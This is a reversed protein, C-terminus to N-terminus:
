TTRGSGTDAATFYLERINETLQELLEHEAIERNAMVEESRREYEDADSERLDELASMQPEFRQTIRAFDASYENRLFESWQRNAVAFGIFGAGREGEVVRQRASQLAQESVEAIKAFVMSHPQRPLDLARALGIRYALRVEVDDVTQSGSKRAVIEEDVITQIEDLRFLSRMVKLRAEVHAGQSADADLLARRVYTMVQIDSFILRIGDQCTQNAGHMRDNAIANLDVRLEADQAAMELVQLVDNSLQSHYRRFDQTQHLQQTLLLLDPADNAQEISDWAAHVRTNFETQGSEEWIDVTPMPTARESDDSDSWIERLTSSDDSGDAYESVSDHRDGPADFELRYVDDARGRTNAWYRRLEAEDLPNGYALITMRYPAHSGNQIVQLPLNEIRNASIDLLRLGLNDTWQPWQTLGTRYLWLRELHAHHVPALEGLTNGGLDLSVLNPIQMLRDMASQDLTLGAGDLSLYTLQEFTHLREPLGTIQSRVLSLNTINPFQGLFSDLQAATASVTDLTISRIQAYHGALEPLGALEQMDLDALFVVRRGMNPSSEANFRWADTVADAVERRVASQTGPQASAVWGDLATSLTDLEQLRNQVEQWLLEVTAGEELRGRIYTAMDNAFAPTNGLDPYLRAYAARLRQRDAERLNAIPLGRGSLRYGFRGDLLRGPGRFGPKIPQMGLIKAVRLRQSSAESVIRERLALAGQVSDNFGIAQRAEEPLAQLVTSFFNQHELVEEQLAQGRRDFAQYRSGSKVLVARQTASREGIADLLPGSLAGDRVEVRLGKPWGPLRELLHLALKHTDGHDARSALFFGELAQNVRAEQLYDRVRENLALPIRQTSQMQTLQQADAEALVERAAATPLRPFDRKLLMVLPDASQERLLNLTDFLLPRSDWSVRGVEFALNMPNAPRRPSFILAKEDESLADLVTSMLKGQDIRAQSVVIPRGPPLTEGALGTSVQIAREKPWGRISPLLKLQLRPDASEFRSGDNILEIFTSVQQNVGFREITDLLGAPPAQRDLHLVSLLSHDAGSVRMVQEVAEEPLSAVPHGLRRFSKRADWDGPNEGEHRWAGAGNHELTPSFRGNRPPEVRWSNLATDESVPYLRDELSVYQKGRHSFIGDADPKLGSPLVVDSAFPVLNPSWLRVEGNNLTVPRMSDVFSSARVPTLLTSLERGAIAMSAAMALNEAVSELHGLAADLDGQAWAAAGEFVEGLLQLGIIVAVAEGLGPIFGAVTLVTEALETLRAIESAQDKEFVPVATLRADERIRVMTATAFHATLLDPVAMLKLDLSVNEDLVVLTQTSTLWGSGYQETKTTLTKLRTTLRKLFREREGLRVFSSFFQQYKENRLRVRLWNQVGNLSAHESIPWAPDGPVCLVCTDSVASQIVLVDKIHTHLLNLCSVRASVPAIDKDAYGTASLVTLYAAESLTGRMRAIHAQVQLAKLPHDNLAQRIQEPDPAGTSIEDASPAFVSNLHTQYQEGLDLQRCLKMFAAAPANWAYTSSAPVAPDPRAKRISSFLEGEAASIEERQYNSLAAQWLTRRSIQEVGDPLKGTDIEQQNEAWTNKRSPGSVGLYGKCTICEPPSLRAQWIEDHDIDLGPGFADNLAQNLLPRAFHDLSKLRGLVKIRVARLQHGLVMDRRLRRRLEPSANVYWSPLATKIFDHHVNATAHTM